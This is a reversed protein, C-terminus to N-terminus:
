TWVSLQTTLIPKITLNWEEQVRSRGFQITNINVPALASLNPFYQLHHLNNERKGCSDQGQSTIWRQMYALSVAPNKDPLV